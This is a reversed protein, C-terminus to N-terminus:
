AGAIRVNPPVSSRNVRTVVDSISLDPLFVAALADWTGSTMTWTAAIAAATPQVYDESTAGAGPETFLENFPAGAVALTAPTCIGIILAGDVTPTPSVNGSSPTASTGSANATGELPSVPDVGSYEASVIARFNHSAEYTATFTRNGGGHNKHYWCEIRQNGGTRAVALVADVGLDDETLTVTGSPECQVLHAVLNGAAIGNVTCAISTGAGAAETHGFQVRASM